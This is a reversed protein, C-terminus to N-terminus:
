TGPTCAHRKRNTRSAPKFSNNLFFSNVFPSIHNRARKNVDIEAVLRQSWIRKQRPFEFSISGLAFKVDQAMVEDRVKIGEALELLFSGKKRLANFKNLLKVNKAMKPRSPEYICNLFDIIILANSILRTEPV